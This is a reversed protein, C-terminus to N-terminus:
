IHRSRSDSIETIRSMTSRLTTYINPTSTMRSMSSIVVMLNDTSPVKAPNDYRVRDQLQTLNCICTTPHTPAHFKPVFNKKLLPSHLVRSFELKRLFPLITIKTFIRFKELDRIIFRVEGNFNDRSIKSGRRIKNSKSTTPIERKELRPTDFSVHCPLPIGCPVRLTHCKALPMHDVLFSHSVNFWMPSMIGHSMNLWTPYSTM